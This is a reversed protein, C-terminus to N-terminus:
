RIVENLGRATNQALNFRHRTGCATACSVSNALEIVDNVARGLWLMGHGFASNPAEWVRPHGRLGSLDDAAWRPLAPLSAVPRSLFRQCAASLRGYADDASADSGCQNALVRIPTKIGDAAGRKVLAYADILALDETTTVLIVLRSRLWFRRTWPTLGRGADVVLVSATKGLSQLEGLLRQQAHRSFDINVNTRRHALLLCGCPGPALADAASCAGSLVDAVSREIAAMAGAVHAVNPEQQAADVLVVREGRDALVAALNVAVTTAGVGAKGGAVVVMPPGPAAAAGEPLRTEVLERLRFAQDRM